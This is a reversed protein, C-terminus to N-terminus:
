RKNRFVREPTPDLYPEAGIDRPHCFWVLKGVTSLGEPCKKAEPHTEHFRNLMKKQLNKLDDSNERLGAVSKLENPDEELNYLRHVIGSPGNGTKYNIGLDRVGSTFVYKWKGDTVMALNDELYTSMAIEKHSSSKGELVKKFSKGQAENIPALSLLDVITPAIDIYEILAKERHSKRFGSGARIIMPQHVAEQWMTHKEFRKHENLLYGNDSLYLVLTEDAKGSKELADLVLGVNKDMYETSTYYAAKIGKRERETLGKYIEPVWRDDESSTEPLTMDEPKHRGAFEIPFYYPAHPEYFAMWLFFPKESDANEKIFKAAQNALYTGKSHADRIPHPLVNCNMFEGQSGSAKAKARDYFKISKDIEDPKIQKLYTKYQRSILKDFGHTPQKEYLESWVWNNFHDKGILATAYGKSKLHEAITINGEDQFPTFLLNVGTAHPYKGTLMSQRSASCIPANCYAREFLVGEQALKDINPTRVQKNGYAGTVKLAHDDALLVIVNKLKPLEEASLSVCLLTLLLLKYM